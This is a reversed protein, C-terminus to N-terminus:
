SADLREIAKATFRRTMDHHTAYKPQTPHIVHPTQEVFRRARRDM